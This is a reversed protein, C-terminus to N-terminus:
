SMRSSNDDIKLILSLYFSILLLAITVAFVSEFSTWKLLWGGLISFVFGLATLTSSIAVYVPRKSEPAIEFVLNLDANRFGDRAVGFLFFFIMFSWVNSAFIAICFILIFIILAVRMMLIYDYTLRKWILLNGFVSGLMEVTIFSGIVWGSLDVLEKAKIIVFPLSLLFSFGLFTMAIQIKFRSNTKLIQYSNKLFESFSKEREQIDEKIPEDITSFTWLGISMLIASSMFLYAYSRPAEFNELVFGAIGGSLLAGLSAFLQKNSMTKGRQEKTFVKAIVEKFYIGGFGAASSFVFLWIGILLLTMSPNKDGILLISLGILFWSLVRVFFVLKLYKMVKKFSQAYFAAFLGVTSSAGRLIAVFFGVILFNQSFHHVILPLITSPEAVTTALAVFFGHIANKANNNKYSM